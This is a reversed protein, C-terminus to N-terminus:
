PKKDKRYNYLLCTKKRHKLANYTIITGSSWGNWIFIGYDALGAMYRDRDPYTTLHSLYHYHEDPVVRGRSVPTIGYCDFPLGIDLAAQIATADIGEADGCVLSYDTWGSLRIVWQRAHALMAPTARRSGSILVKPM